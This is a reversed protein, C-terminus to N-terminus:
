YRLLAVIGGAARLISSATTPLATVQAGTAIATEVAREGLLDAPGGISPPITTSTQAFDYDPDLILHDVREEALAGLTEQAGLTAAGGARARGDAAEILPEL